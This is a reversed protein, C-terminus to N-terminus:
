AQCVTCWYLKRGGLDEVIIADQGCVRCPRGHRLYVYNAHQKGPADAAAGGRHEPATTIIRGLRVGVELLRVSDRWLMELQERPVRHAPTHPNVGARFLTEARYINGIGAIAKQDMLVAGISRSTKECARYFREPDAEPDLPDPGLGRRLEAVGTPELVRCITAGILDAYGHETALRVRTTKRPPPPGDYARASAAADDDHVEREGIRRPAGLSSRAIFPEDGGFGWAGYLGLHVNLTLRHEFELFFHKGHALARVARHGDLLAAGQAFRGQPSSVALPQDLFSETFKRAVRHITHGEPM